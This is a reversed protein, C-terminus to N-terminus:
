NAHWRKGVVQASFRTWSRNFSRFEYFLEDEGVHSWSSTGAFLTNLDDIWTGVDPTSKQDFDFPCSLVLLGDDNMLRGISNVVEAPCPHRDVVNLCTILDFGSQPQYRELTENVITLREKARPIPPPRTRPAVWRPSGVRDVLPVEPLKCDSSLLRRAWECFRKSPEVLVLHELGSFQREFEFITRGVAGGVDCLSRADFSIEMAWSRALMAVGLPFSPPVRDRRPNPYPLGGSAEAGDPTEFLFDSWGIELYIALREPTAYDEDLSSM